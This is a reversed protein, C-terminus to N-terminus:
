LEASSSGTPVVDYFNFLGQPDWKQKLQGLRGLNRAGYWAAPGEDGHAFNVYVAPEPYGSAATFSKRAAELFESVMGDKSTDDYESELQIHMKLDRHPYASDQDAVQLVKQNPFRHIMFTTTINPNAKSFRDLETLFQSTVQPDTRRAAISRMNVHQNRGCARTDEIGFYSTSIVDPWAVSFVESRLPSLAELPALFKKAVSVPGAFNANVIIVVQGSSPEVVSAINLALFPSMNDDLSALYEYVEERQSGLYLYSANTINGDNTTKPVTYTASTVIGFNAGAGRLAWFLDPNESRSATVVDGTSTVVQAEELLDILLGMYGQNASVGAGLTAGVVGVCSATGIPFQYGFEYIPDILQSFKASGGVTLLSNTKNFKVTNFNGLDIQIGGQLGEMQISVGHGGGTVLFPIGSSSAIKVINQVDDVIAPKITAIYSPAAYDSWRQAVEATYNADSALYISAGPSLYPGFLENIDPVSAAAATTAVFRQWASKFFM